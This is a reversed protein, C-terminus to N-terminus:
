NKIVTIWNIENQLEIPISNEDYYYGSLIGNFLKDENSIYYPIQSEMAIYDYSYKYDCITIEDNNLYVNNDPYIKFSILNSIITDDRCLVVNDITRNLLVPTVKM